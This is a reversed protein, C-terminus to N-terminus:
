CAAWSCSPWGGAASAVIDNFGHSRQRAEVQDGSLGEAGSLGALREPPVERRSM